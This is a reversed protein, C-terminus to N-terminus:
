LPRRLFVKTRVSAHPTVLRGLAPGWQYPSGRRAWMGGLLSQTWVVGCFDSPPKPVAPEGFSSSSCTCVAYAADAIGANHFHDKLGKCLLKTLYTFMCNIKVLCSVNLHNCGQSCGLGNNKGSKRCSVEFTCTAYPLMICPDFLRCPWDSHWTDIVWDRRLNSDIFWPELNKKSRWRLSGRTGRSTCAQPWKQHKRAM